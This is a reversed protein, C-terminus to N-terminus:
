KHIPRRMLKILIFIPSPVLTCVVCLISITKIPTVEGMTIAGNHGNISWEVLWIVVLGHVFLYILINGSISYFQIMHTLYLIHSLFIIYATCGFIICRIMAYIEKCNWQKNTHIFHYFDATWLVSRIQCVAIVISLQMYKILFLLSNFSERKKNNPNFHVSKMKVMIIIIARNVKCKLTDLKCVFNCIYM